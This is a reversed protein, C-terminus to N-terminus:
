FEAFFNLKQQVFTTPSLLKEQLFNRSHPVVQRIGVMTCLYDRWLFGLQLEFLFQANLQAHLHLHM